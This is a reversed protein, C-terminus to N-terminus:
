RMTKQNVSKLSAVFFAGQQRDQVSYISSHLPFHRCTKCLSTQPCFLFFTFLSFLFSSLSNFVYLIIRKNSVTLLSTNAFLSLFKCVFLEHLIKLHLFTIHASMCALFFMKKNYLLMICLLCNKDQMNNKRCMRNNVFLLGNNQSM